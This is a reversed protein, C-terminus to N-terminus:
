VCCQVYKRLISMIENILSSPAATAGGAVPSHTFQDVDRNESM